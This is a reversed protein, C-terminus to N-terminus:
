NKKRRKDDFKVKLIRNQYMKSYDDGNKTEQQIM